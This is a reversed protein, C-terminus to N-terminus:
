TLNKRTKAHTKKIASCSLRYHAHVDVIKNPMNIAM